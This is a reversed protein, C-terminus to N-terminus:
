TKPMGKMAEDYERKEIKATYDVYGLDDPEILGKNCAHSAIDDSNPDTMSADEFFVSFGHKSDYKIHVEYYNM